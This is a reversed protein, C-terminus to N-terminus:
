ELIERACTQMATDREWEDTDKRIISLGYKDILCGCFDVVESTDFGDQKAMNRSVMVCTKMDRRYTKDTTLYYYSEKGGLYVTYPPIMVALIPTIPQEYRYKDFSKYLGWFYFITISIWFIAALVFGVIATWADKM